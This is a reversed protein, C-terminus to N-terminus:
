FRKSKRSSKSLLNLVKIRSKVQAIMNPTNFDLYWHMNIHTVRNIPKFNMKILLKRLVAWIEMCRLSIKSLWKSISCIRTNKNVLGDRSKRLNSSRTIIHQRYSHKIRISVILTMWNNSKNRNTKNCRYSSITWNGPKCRKDKSSNRRM